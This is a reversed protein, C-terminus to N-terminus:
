RVKSYEPGSTRSSTSMLPISNRLYSALAIPSPLKYLGAVTGAQVSGGGARVRDPCLPHLGRAEVSICSGLSRCKSILLATVRSVAFFWIAGVWNGILLSSRRSQLHLHLAGHHLTPFPHPYRPNSLSRLSRALRFRFRWGWM